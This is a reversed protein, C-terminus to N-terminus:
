WGEFHPTNGARGAKDTVDCPYTYRVLKDPGRIAWYRLGRYIFFGDDKEYWCYSGRNYRTWDQQVPWGRSPPGETAERRHYWGNVTADGAGTVEVGCERIYWRVYDDYLHALGHTPDNRYLLGARPTALTEQAERDGMAFQLILSALGM